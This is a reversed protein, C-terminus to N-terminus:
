SATFPLIFLIRTGSASNQTLHFFFGHHVLLAIDKIMQEHAICIM